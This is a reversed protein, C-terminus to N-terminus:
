PLSWEESEDVATTCIHIEYINWMFQIDGTDIM